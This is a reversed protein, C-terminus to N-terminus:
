PDETVAGAQEPTDSSAARPSYLWGVVAGFTLGTLHGVNPFGWEPSSICIAQWVLMVLITLSDVRLPDGPFRTAQMWIFGFLAFVISSMGAFAAGGALGPIAVDTPSGAQALNSVAAAGLCLLGLLLPGRLSEIRIGFHYIFIVGFILHRLDYYFFSPSVLRWCQGALLEGMTAWGTTTRPLECFAMWEGAPSTLNFDTIIAGFLSMAILSLTYGRRIPFALAPRLGRLSFRRRARATDSGNSLGSSGTSEDVQSSKEAMRRRRDRERVATVYISAEPNTQYDAFWDRAPQVSNEDDVWIGWGSPDEIIIGQVGRQELYAHFRDLLGHDKSQAIRRM